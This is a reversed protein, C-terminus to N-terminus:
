NVGEEDAWRLYFDNDDQEADPQLAINESEVQEIYLMSEYYLEELGGAIRQLAALEQRTKAELYRREIVEVLEDYVENIRTTM